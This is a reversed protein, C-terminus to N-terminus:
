SVLSQAIERVGRVRKFLLGSDAYDMGILVVAALIVLYIFAGLLMLNPGASPILAFIVGAFSITKVLDKAMAMNERFTITLSELSDNADKLRKQDLKASNMIESIQVRTNEVGFAWELVHAIYEGEKVKEWIHEIKDKIESLAGTGLLQVLADIVKKLKEIGLRFLRGIKPLEQTFRGLNSFAAGVKEEDIKSLEAIVSTVVGEAEKVLTILTEHACNRFSEIASVLDVPEVTEPAVIIETFGFRGPEAGKTLPSSLSREIVRTTNELNLLAEDLFRSKAKEGGEGLTLGAAMLVNAVQLDTLVSALVDETLRERATKDEEITTELESFMFTRYGSGGAEHHRTARELQTVADEVTEQDTDLIDRLWRGAYLVSQTSSLYNRSLAAHNNSKNM